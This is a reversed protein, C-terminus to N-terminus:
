RMWRFYLRNKELVALVTEVDEASNYCHFSFRLSNKWNAVIVGAQALQGIAAEPVDSHVCVMPGYSGPPTLVTFGMELVGNAFREALANVHAQIRAIGVSLLVEMGAVAAYISAIPQLGSEFRRATDSYWLQERSFDFIDRQAFWGTFVPELLSVLSDKVHLLAVGGTSGLLYKMCGTVLFDVDLDRVDIDTVGVSHYADLLLLAGCGHCIRALERVDLHEGTRHHVQRAVVLLTQEDVTRRFVELLNEGSQASVFQIQAGRRRQALWVHAMTPFEDAFLLVKNRTRGFDLCSALVGMGVSVCFTVAVENDSSNVIRAFSQRAAEIRPLWLNWPAGYDEWTDLYEMFAARVQSSLAGKSCSDFYRRRQVLPFSERIKAVEKEELM